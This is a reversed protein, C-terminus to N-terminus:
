AKMLGPERLTVERSFYLALVRRPDNRAAFISLTVQSASTHM